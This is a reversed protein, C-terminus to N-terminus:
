TRRRRLAAFGLLGLGALAAASSPEPIASAVLFGQENLGWGSLSNVRIASLQSSTLGGAGTGFRLSQGDVFSGAISLEFSGWTQASSDAFVLSSGAGLTITGAADLELAGFSSTATGADLAGGALVLRGGLTQASGLALTGASVTVDGTFDNVGSITVTGATSKQLGNSGSLRASVSGARLDYFSGNNSITGNAISGGSVVGLANVISKGGLDLVGGSVTVGGTGLTGNGSLALTGGSVTTGGSYTNAGSLTTTGNGSRVLAVLGTGGASNGIVLGFSGSTLGGNITLTSTTNASTNFIAGTGNNSGSTLHAVTQNRGNLDLNEGRNDSFGMVLSSVTSIGNDVNLKVSGGSPSGYSGALGDFRTEGTYNAAAGLIIQGGTGGSPGQGARFTVTQNGSAGIVGNITLGNNSNSGGSATAPSGGALVLGATGNNTITGSIIAGATSNAAVGRISVIADGTIEIPVTSAINGRVDFFLSNSSNSGRLVLKSNTGGSMTTVTTNGYGFTSGVGRSEWTLVTSNALTLPGNLSTVSTGTNKHFTYNATFLSSNPSLTSSFGVTTNGNGTFNLIGSSTAATPTNVVSGNFSSSTNWWGGTTANSSISTTNGVFYYNTQATAASVGCLSVLASFM